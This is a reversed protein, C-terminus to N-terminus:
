AVEPYQRIRLAEPWESMDAGKRHKLLVRCDAGQFRELLMTDTNEPWVDDNEGDFGVDNRDVVHAGMQKHFCATGAARCEEVIRQAWERHYPRAGLGSEGGVIVWDIRRFWGRENLPWDGQPGQVASQLWPALHVRGLLPEASIFRVTAPTQILEPVREDARQQDEASVGIWVNPLPWAEGHRTMKELERDSKPPPLMQAAYDICERIRWTPDGAESLWEFWQRMRTAQKTLVQFTHRGSVAMVGFVAAIQENTLSPHFLDSMSNVFVHRPERWRLPKVLADAVFRVRGSWDLKGDKKRRRTLGEYAGGPRDQRRAQRIAYCNDCGASVRTCGRTPNWSVDTWEIATM